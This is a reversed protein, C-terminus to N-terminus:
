KNKKAKPKEKNKQIILFVTIIIITIISVIILILYVTDDKLFDTIKKSDDKSLLSSKLKSNVLVYRSNNYIDIEYTGEKTKTVDTDIYSFTSSSPNYCYMYINRGDILGELESDLKLILKAKGPLKGNEGLAITVGDSVFSKIESDEKSPFVDISVDIAKSVDTIDKGNFVLQEDNYNIVLQKSTGKIANFVEKNVIPSNDANITIVTDNNADYIARIVTVNIDENNYNYSKKETEQAKVSLNINFNYYTYNSDNQNNSFATSTDSSTLVATTLVYDGIKANSPVYFYPNEKLSHVYVTMKENTSSVFDLKMTNITKNTEYNVKITDGAFASNNELSITKIEIPKIEEVTPNPNDETTSATTPTVVKFTSTFNFYISNLSGDRNYHKTYNTYQTRKGTFLIDTIEYTGDSMKTPVTFSRNSSSVNVTFTKGTVSNRLVISAKDWQGTYGLIVNIVEDRKVEEKDFKISLLNVEEYFVVNASSANSSSANSSSANSSSANSSSANSSSANSSSANSSSANSSSANSGSAVDGLIRYGYGQLYSIGNKHMEYGAILGIAFIFLFAIVKQFIKNKFVQKVEEM